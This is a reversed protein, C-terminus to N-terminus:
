SPRCEQVEPRGFHPHPPSNTDPNSNSDLIDIMSLPIHDPDFPPLPHSGILSRIMDSEYPISFDLLKFKILLDGKEGNSNYMGKKRIRRTETLQSLFPGNGDYGIVLKEGSPLLIDRTFKSMAELPHIILTSLIHFGDVLELSPHPKPKLELIINGTTMGPIEDSKGQLVITSGFATHPHVHVESIEVVNQFQNEQLFIGIGTCKPCVRINQFLGMHTTMREVINGKGQCMQCKEPNGVYVKRKHRFKITTGMYAEELTLELPLVRDQTKKEQNSSRRGFMQFIDPFHGDMAPPGNKGFQDYHNKKEPNSLVEYAENIKKFMEPDGGKDPHFQRAKQKFSKKIEEPTANRQIGLIHYYDEDM